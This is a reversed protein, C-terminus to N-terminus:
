PECLSNPTQKPQFNALTGNHLTFSKDVAEAKLLLSTEPVINEQQHKPTSLQLSM